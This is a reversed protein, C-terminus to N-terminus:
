VRMDEQGVFILIVTEMVLAFMTSQKVGARPACVDRTTISIKSAHQISPVNNTTALIQFCHSVNSVIQTAIFMYFM